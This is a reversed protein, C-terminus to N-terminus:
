EAVDAKGCKEWNKEGKEEKAQPTEEHVEWPKNQKKGEM